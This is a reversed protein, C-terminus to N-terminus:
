DNFSKRRAVPRRMQQLLIMNVHEISQNVMVQMSESFPDASFVFNAGKRHFLGETKQILCDARVESDSINLFRTIEFMTRQTNELADEYHIVLRPFDRLLWLTTIGEWYQLYDNVMANWGGSDTFDVEKAFGVHGGGTQRHRESIIADYPNRIILIAADFKDVHESDTEHTKVVITNRELWDYKEGRFGARFLVADSYFSGTYYGTVREILYRIWTNGSGPFSALAVLPRSGPAILTKTECIDINSKVDRGPTYALINVDEVLETSFLFATIIWATVTVVSIIASRRIMRTCCRRM